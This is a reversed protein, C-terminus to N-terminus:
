PGQKRTRSAHMWSRKSSPWCDADRSELRRRAERTKEPRDKRRRLEEQLEDGRFDPGFEDDEATDIERAM